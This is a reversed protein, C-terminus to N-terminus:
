RLEIVVVVIVIRLGTRSEQDPYHRLWKGVNSSSRPPINSSQLGSTGQLNEIRNPGTKVNSSSTTGKRRKRRFLGSGGRPQQQLLEPTTFAVMGHVYVAADMGGASERNEPDACFHFFSEAALRRRFLQFVRAGQLQRDLVRSGHHEERLFNCPHSAEGHDKVVCHSRSSAASTSRINSRSGQHLRPEVRPSGHDKCIKTRGHDGRHPGRCSYNNCVDWCHNRNRGRESEAETAAEADVGPPNELFALFM